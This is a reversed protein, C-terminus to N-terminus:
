LVAHIMIMFETVSSFKVAESLRHTNVRLVIVGCKVGIQNSVVSGSAKRFVDTTAGVLLFLVVVVVVVVVVIL